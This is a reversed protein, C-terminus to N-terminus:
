PLYEMHQKIVSILCDRLGCDPPVTTEYIAEIVTTFVESRWGIKLADEFNQKVLEKLLGIDSKDAIFYVQVHIMM